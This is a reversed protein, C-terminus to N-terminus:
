CNPQFEFPQAIEIVFHGCTFGFSVFFIQRGPPTNGIPRCEFTVAYVLFKFSTAFPLTPAIQLSPTVIVPRKM